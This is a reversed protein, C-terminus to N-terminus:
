VCAASPVTISTWRGVSSIIFPQIGVKRIETEMKRTLELMRHKAQPDVTLTTLWKLQKVTNQHNPCAFTYLVKKERINLDMNITRETKVTKNETYDGNQRNQKM